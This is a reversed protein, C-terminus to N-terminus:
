SQSIQEEGVGVSVGSVVFRAGGDRGSEVHIDWGHADVIESVIVLGLGTGGDNTSVGAEFVEDRRDPEIGTGTDEVYFGDDTTGVRVTVDDGGHELANRVLNEFLRQLRDADAALTGDSEITLEADDTVVADWALSVVTELRVVETDEVLQGNRALQLADQIIVDMRSLARQANQTYKQDGTEHALEVNGVAVNLPNRLDHSVVSAFRELRENTRTLRRERRKRTTIDRFNIVVGEVFPEDLLNRGIGELVVTDDDPPSVCVEFREVAGPRDCLDGFTEEVLPQDKADVLEFCREGVLKSAPTGTLGRIPPSVYEIEGTDDVIMVIDSAHEISSQFRRRARQRQTADRVTVVTGGEGNELPSARVELYQHRVGDGSEIVVSTDRRESDDLDGLEAAVAPVVASFQRGIADGPPSFLRRAAPNLDVIRQESDLVVYAERMEEVVTDRAIPVLDLLQYRFLAVALLSSSVAFVISTYDIVSEGLVWYVNSFFPISVGVFIALSQLRLIRRSRLVQRLLLGTGLLVILYSYAILVYYGTHFDRQIVALPTESIGTVTWMFGHLPNTVALLSLGVIPLSIVAVLRPTIEIRADVYEAAFVFLSPALFSSGLYSVRLWAFQWDLTAGTLQLLYAASWWGASLSLFGLATAGSTERNRFSYTAIGGSLVVSALLLIFVPHFQWAGEM